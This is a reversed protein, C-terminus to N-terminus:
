SSGGSVYGYRHSRVANMRPGGNIPARDSALAPSSQMGGTTLLESLVSACSRTGGMELIVRLREVNDSLSLIRQSVRQTEHDLKAM